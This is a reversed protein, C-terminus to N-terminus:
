SIQLAKINEKSLAVEHFEKKLLYDLDLSAWFDDRINRKLIKIENFNKIFEVVAWNNNERKRFFYYEKDKELILFYGKEFKEMLNHLTEQTELSLIRKESINRFKELILHNRDRKNM